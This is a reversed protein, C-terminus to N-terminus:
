SRHTGKELFLGVLCPKTSPAVLVPGTLVHKWSTEARIWPMINMCM